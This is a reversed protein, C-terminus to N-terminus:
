RVPLFAMVINTINAIIFKTNLTIPTSYNSDSSSIAFDISEFLIGSSIMCM